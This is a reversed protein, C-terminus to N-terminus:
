NWKIIMQSRLVHERSNEDQSGLKDPATQIDLKLKHWKSILKWQYSKWSGRLRFAQYYYNNDKNAIWHQVVM